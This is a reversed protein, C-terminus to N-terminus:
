NVFKGVGFEGALIKKHISKCIELIQDETYTKSFNFPSKNNLFCFAELRSNFNSSVENNCLLVQNALFFNFNTSYEVNRLKYWQKDKTKM